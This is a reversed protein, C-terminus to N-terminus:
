ISKKLANVLNKAKIGRGKNDRIADFVTFEETKREEKIILPKIELSNEKLTAIFQNTNFKKRWKAPITIQGKTTTKLITAM